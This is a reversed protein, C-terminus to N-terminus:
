AGTLGAPLAPRPSRHTPLYQRLLESRSNVGLRRHLTKTHEAVTSAAIGMRAAAEKVSYGGLLLDLTQRVRPPLDAVEPRVDPPRVSRQRLRMLWLHSLQMVRRERGGFRQGGWPRYVIFGHLVGPRLAVTTAVFDDVRGARRAGSVADSAYWQDDPVMQERTATLFRVRQQLQFLATAGPDDIVAHQLYDLYAARDGPAAWGIEIPDVMRPIPNAEGAVLDLTLGLQAGTLSILNRLVHSRWAHPDDGLEGAQGVLESVRRIEHQRLRTSKM